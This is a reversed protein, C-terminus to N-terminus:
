LPTWGFEPMLQDLTLSLMAFAAAHTAQIEVRNLSFETGLSVQYPGNVYAIGPLARLDPQTAGSGGKVYQGYTFEGFPNLDRLPAPLEFESVYDTLYSFQYSVVWDANVTNAETGGTKLLDELDAQIALPRLYRIAQWDPLDGMGKSFMVIPGFYTHTTCGATPNGNTLFLDTGVALRFEHRASALFAYKTLIEFDEFGSLVQSSFRRQRHRGARTITALSCAHGPQCAPNNWGDGLQISFDQSLQKELTANVSLLTGHSLKVWGPILDLENSPDADEVILPEIFNRKGVQARAVTPLAALAILLGITLSPRM